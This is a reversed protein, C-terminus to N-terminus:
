IGESIHVTTDIDQESIHDVFATGNYFWRRLEGM